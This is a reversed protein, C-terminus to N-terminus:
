VRQTAQAQGKAEKESYDPLYEPTMGQQPQQQAPHVGGMPVNYNVQQLEVVSIQSKPEFSEPSRKFEVAYKIIVFTSLIAVLALVIQSAVSRFVFRDVVNSCLQMQEDKTLRSGAINGLCDSNFTDKAGPALVLVVTTVSMAVQLLAGLAAVIGVVVAARRIRRYAVAFVFSGALLMYGGLSRQLINFLQGFENSVFGGRLGIGSSFALALGYFATFLAIVSTASQYFYPSLNRWFAARSVPKPQPDM